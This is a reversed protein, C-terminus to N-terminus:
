LIFDEREIKYYKILLLMLFFAIISITATLVFPLSVYFSDLQIPSTLINTYCAYAIIYFILVSKRTVIWKELLIALCQILYIPLISNLIILSLDEQFIAVHILVILLFCILQVLSCLMCKYLFNRGPNLYVTSLLEDVGYINQKYIEYAAFIGLLFFFLSVTAIRTNPSFYGIILMLLIGILALQIYNTLQLRYLRFVTMAKSEIQREQIVEYCCQKTMELGEKPIDIDDIGPRM